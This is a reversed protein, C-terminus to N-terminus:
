PVVSFTLHVEIPKSGNRPINVVATRGNGGGNIGAISKEVRVAYSAGSEARFQIPNGIKTRIGDGTAESRTAFACEHCPLSMVRSERRIRRRETLDEAYCSKCKWRLYGNPGVHFESEDKEVGCYRCRRM